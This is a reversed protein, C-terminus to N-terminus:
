APPERRSRSGLLQHEVCSHLATAESFLTKSNSNQRDTQRLTQRDTEREREGGGEGERRWSGEGRREEGGGGGDRPKLWVM